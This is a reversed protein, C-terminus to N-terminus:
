MTSFPYFLEPLAGGKEPLAWFFVNKKVPSTEKLKNDYVGLEIPKSFFWMQCSIM